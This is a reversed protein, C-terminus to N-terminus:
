SDKKVGGGRSLMENSGGEADQEGIPANQQRVPATQCVSCFTTSIHTNCLFFM